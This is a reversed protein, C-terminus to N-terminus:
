QELIYNINCNYMHIVKNLFKKLNQSFYFFMKFILKINVYKQITNMSKIRAYHIM